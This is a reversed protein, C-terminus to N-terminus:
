SKAASGPTALLNPVRRLLSRARLVDPDRPDLPLPAYRDPDRRVPTKREIRIRQM